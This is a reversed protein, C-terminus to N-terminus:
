NFQAQIKTILEEQRNYVETPSLSNVIDERSCHINARYIIDDGDRLAVVTGQLILEYFSDFIARAKENDPLDDFIQFLEKM